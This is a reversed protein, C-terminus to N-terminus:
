KELVKPKQEDATLLLAESDRRIKQSIVDMVYKFLTIDDERGVFLPHRGVLEILSTTAEIYEPDIRDKTFAESIIGRESIPLLYFCDIVFL